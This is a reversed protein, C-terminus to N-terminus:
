VNERRTVQIAKDFDGMKIHQLMEQLSEQDRQAHDPSAYKLYVENAEKYKEGLLKLKQLLDEYSTFPFQELFDRSLHQAVKMSLDGRRMNLIIHFLLDRKVNSTLKNLDSTQAFPASTDM